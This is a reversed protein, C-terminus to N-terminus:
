SSLSNGEQDDALQRRDDNYEVGETLSSGRLLKVIDVVADGSWLLLLARSSQRSCRGRRSSSSLDRVM